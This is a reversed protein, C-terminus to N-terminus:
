AFRLSRRVRIVFRIAAEISNGSVINPVTRRHTCVYACSVLVVSSFLGSPVRIIVFSGRILLFRSSFFELDFVARIRYDLFFGGLRVFLFPYKIIAPWNEVTRVFPVFTFRGAATVYNDFFDDASSAYFAVFFFVVDRTRAGRTFPPLFIRSGGTCTRPGHTSAPGSM